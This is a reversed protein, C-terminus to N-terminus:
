VPAARQLGIEFVCTTAVPSGQGIKAVQRAPRSLLKELLFADMQCLVPYREVIAGYPCQGFMFHPSGTHAEWRAQYHFEDFAQALGTLRQTLHSQNLPLATLHSGQQILREALTQALLISAEPTADKMLEAFLIEALCDLNHPQAQISLHYLYVPHGRGKELPRVEVEILGAQEMSHLHYRINAATMGLAQSIASAAAAPHPKLYQLIRTQTPNM